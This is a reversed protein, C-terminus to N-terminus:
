SLPTSSAVSICRAYFGVVFMATAVVPHTFFRSWRSHLGALLWERPGPLNGLAPPRRRATCADTRGVGGPDPHAHVAAHSRGHASFMAPMYRGWVPVHHVAIRLRAALCVTRGVRWQDGRRRLRVVGAHLGSRLAASGFLLDFRWDLLIRAVTPPHCTAASGGRGPRILTAIAPRRHASWSRSASPSAGFLLAERPGLGSRHRVAGPDASLAVVANRRQRWGIGWGSGPCGAKALM